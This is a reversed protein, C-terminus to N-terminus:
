NIHVLKKLVMEKIEKKNFPVIENEALERKDELLQHM